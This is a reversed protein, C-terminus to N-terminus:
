FGVSDSENALRIDWFSSYSCITCKYMSRPMDRIM